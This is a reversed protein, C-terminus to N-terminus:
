EHDDERLVDEEALTRRIDLLDALIGVNGKARYIMHGAIDLQYTQHSAAELAEGYAKIIDYARTLRLYLARVERTVSKAKEENM